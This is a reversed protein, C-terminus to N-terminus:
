KLCPKMSSTPFLHWVSDHHAPAPAPVLLGSSVAPCRARSPLHWCAEQSRSPAASPLTLLLLGPPFPLFSTGFASPTAKACTHLPLHTKKHLIAVLPSSGQLAGASFHPCSPSVGSSLAVHKRCQPKFRIGFATPVEWPRIDGCRWQQGCATVEEVRKYVEQQGEM